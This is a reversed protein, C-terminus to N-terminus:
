AVRARNSVLQVAAALPMPRHLLHGQAADVKLKRLAAYESQTEVGEAVIMSGIERSFRVLAATMATRAADRDVDRTLSMDLKILDPRLDLIHRLGSYGAGADDVAIRVKQRLGHLVRKLPEYDKIIAHETVEVIVRRGPVEDLVSSLEENLLTDPSVNIALYVDDPLYALAALASKVATLELAAGLGVQQAEQFWASPPREGHDAFRALAEFGIVDGDSLRCIPQLAMSVSGRDVVGHIRALVDDRHAESALEAEIQFAALEAFAQMTNLDRENLTPDPNQSFCCFTGHVSGDSLRLPISIHAGIPMTRTCELAAAEAVQSADPILFPLRGDLVRQCYGEEAEFVDGAELLTSGGTDAYQILVKGNIVHSAFAVDMGLHERVAKLILEVLGPQFSKPDATALVTDFSPLAMM